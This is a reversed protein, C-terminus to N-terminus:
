PDDVGECKRGKAGEGERRKGRECKRVKVGEFKIILLNL